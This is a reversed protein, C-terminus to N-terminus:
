DRCMQGPAPLRLDVLYSAMATRACNSFLFMSYDDADRSLVVSGPLQRAADFSWAYASSSQHVSALFLAPPTQRPSSQDRAAPPVPWGICGVLHQWGAVVGGLHPSLRRAMTTLAQVGALDDVAPATDACAHTRAEVRNLTKDQPVTLATADGNMASRLASAFAPWQPERINLYDQAAARIDDGRVVRGMGAPIPSRDAAATLRDFDAAVDRGSLACAGVTPQRGCWTAFRDFSKEATTIEAALREVPGSTTDVASDNVIARLRGPFIRAYEAGLATSYGIGYWSLQQENLAERVADVDRAVSGMDLHSFLERHGTSCRQARERNAAVLSAFQETDAPFLHENGHLDPTDACALPDSHGVGRLDLAVIDFRRALDSRALGYSLAYRLQEISSGGAVDNLM